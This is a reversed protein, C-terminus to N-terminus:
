TAGVLETLKESQRRFATAANLDGRESATRAAARAFCGAARVRDSLKDACVARAASLVVDDSSPLNHWRYWDTWGDTYLSEVDLLQQWEGDDRSFRSLGHQPDTLVWLVFGQWVACFDGQRAGYQNLASATRQGWIFRRHLPMGAAIIAAASELKKFAEVQLEDLASQNATRRRRTRVAVVLVAATVALVVFLISILM